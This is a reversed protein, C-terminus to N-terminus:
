KSSVKVLHEGFWSWAELILKAKDKGIIWDKSDKPHALRDRTGIASTFAMGGPTQYSIKYDKGRSRGYLRFALKLNDKLRIKAPRTAVAGNDTVFSDCDQLALIEQESFCNKNNVSFLLASAKLLSIQAEIMSFVTRCLCRRAFETPESEAGFTKNFSALENGIPNQLSRLREEEKQFETLTM